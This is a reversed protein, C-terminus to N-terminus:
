QKGELINKIAALSKELSSASRGVAVKRVISGKFGTLGAQESGMAKILCFGAQKPDDPDHVCPTLDWHLRSTIAQISSNEAIAYAPESAIPQAHDCDTRRAAHGEIRIESQGLLDCYAKTLV